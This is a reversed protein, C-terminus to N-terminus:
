GNPQGFGPQVGNPPRMAGAPVCGAANPDVSCDPANPDVAPPSPSSATTPTPTPVPTPSQSAPAPARETPSAPAETTPAAVNSKSPDGTILAKNPLPEKPTGALVTNMFEQWIQGPLGSGYIIKNNANRIPAVGKTGMWVATSISPTYGVMWADSNEAGLGQTGTKAAVPRGGDLGRKSSKAVSDLAFTVDSAVDAPVAQQAHEAGTVAKLVAGAGDAVQAIFHQRHYM